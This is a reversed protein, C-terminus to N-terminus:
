KAADIRAKLRRCMEKAYDDPADPALREPLDEVDIGRERAVKLAAHFWAAPTDARAQPAAAREQREQRRQAARVEEAGAIGDESGYYGAFALARGVASTEAVEVPNTKEAGSTADLPAESMGTFARGDDFLVVARVILLPATAAIETDIKVIGVPQAKDGHAAALREQVTAYLKGGKMPVPM